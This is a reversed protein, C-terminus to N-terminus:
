LMSGLPLPSAWRRITVPDFRDGPRAFVVVFRVAHMARPRGAVVETGVPRPSRLYLAWDQRGDGDFDGAVRAPHAAQIACDDSAIDTRDVPVASPDLAAIARLLAPAPTDGATGAGTAALLTALAGLGALRSM